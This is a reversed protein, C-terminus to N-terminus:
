STSYEYENIVLSLYKELIRIVIFPFSSKIRQVNLSNVLIRYNEFSNLLAFLPNVILFRPIPNRKKAAHMYRQVLFTKHLDPLKFINHIEKQNLQIRGIQRIM